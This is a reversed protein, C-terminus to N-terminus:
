ENNQSLYTAVFASIAEKLSYFSMLVISYKM